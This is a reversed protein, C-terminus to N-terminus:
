TGITAAMWRAASMIDLSILLHAGFLFGIKVDDIMRNRAAVAPDFDGAFRLVDGVQPEDAHGVGFHQAAREGMRFNNGDVFRLGFGMGANVADDGAVIEVAQIGIEAVGDFIMGQERDVFHAVGALRHGRHDGDIFAGGEFRQFEDVDFVFLQFADERRLFRHGFVRREQVFPFEFGARQATEFAFDGGAFACINALRVFNLPAVDLLCEFFGGRHDLAVIIKGHGVGVGHFGVDGDGIDGVLAHSNIRRRLVREHHAM